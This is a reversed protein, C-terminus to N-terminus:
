KPVAVQDLIGAMAGAATVGDIAAEPALVLRHNIVWAAVRQVDDPIVFDGGRLAAEIRAARALVLAGRVSLGLSFSGSTRTAAAIDLIYGM